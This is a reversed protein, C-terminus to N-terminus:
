AAQPIPAEVRMQEVRKPNMTGDATATPLFIEYAGNADEFSVSMMGGTDAKVNFTSVGTTLLVKVFDVLDRPRFRLNHKGAVKGTAAMEFGEGGEVAYNMKGDSFILEMIKKSKTSAKDESWPKLSAEFFARLDSAALVLMAQPHFGDVDLPKVDRDALSTFGFTKVANDRGKAVLAADTSQWAFGEDGVVPTIDVLLRNAHAEIVSALESQQARTLIM